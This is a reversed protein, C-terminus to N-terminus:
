VAWKQRTCIDSSPKVIGKSNLTYNYSPLIDTYATFQKNNIVNGDIKKNIGNGYLIVSSGKVPSTYDYDNFLHKCDPVIASITKLM